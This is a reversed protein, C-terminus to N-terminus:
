KIIELYLGINSFAYGLFVMALTINQKLVLDIAVAIYILAVLVVLWASMTAGGVQADTLYPPLRAEYM